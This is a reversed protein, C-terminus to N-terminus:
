CIHHYIVIWWTLLFFKTDLMASISIEFILSSASLLGFYFSTMSSLIFAVSILWVHSTIWHGLSAMRIPHLHSTLLFYIFCLWYCFSEGLRIPDVIAWTSFRFVIQTKKWLYDVMIPWKVLQNNFHMRSHHILHPLLCPDEEFFSYKVKRERERINRGKKCFDNFM